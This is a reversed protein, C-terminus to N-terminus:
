ERREALIADVTRLDEALETPGYNMPVGRKALWADAELVGMGQLQALAGLSLAGRRYGEILLADRAARSLDGLRQQLEHEFPAPIDFAITMPRLITNGSWM